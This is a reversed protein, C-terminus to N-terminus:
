PEDRETREARHRVYIADSILCIGGYRKLMPQVREAITAALGETCVTMIYTNTFVGTVEDAMRHGRDGMGEAARVMTYGSAGVEEIMELIRRVEVSAAVIEVKKVPRM